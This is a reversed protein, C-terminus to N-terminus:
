CPLEAVHSDTRSARGAQWEGDHRLGPEVDANM